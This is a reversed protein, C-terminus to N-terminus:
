EVIFKQSFNDKTFSYPGAEWYVKMYLTITDGKMAPPFPGLVRRTKLKGNKKSFYLKTGQAINLETGAYQPLEVDVFETPIPEWSSTYNGFFPNYIPQQIILDSGIIWSTNSDFTAEVVSNNNYRYENDVETAEVDVYFWPLYEGDWNLDIHYYGNKDAEVPFIMQADCGGPCTEPAIPEITCSALAFGAACVRALRVAIYKLKKM